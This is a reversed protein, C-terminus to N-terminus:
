IHILSLQLGTVEVPCGGGDIREALERVEALTNLKELLQKM